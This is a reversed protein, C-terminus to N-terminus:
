ICHLLLLISKNVIYIMIKFHYVIQKSHNFFFMPKPILQIQVLILDLLWKAAHSRAKGETKWWCFLHYFADRRTSIINVNSFMHLARLMIGSVGKWVEYNIMQKM